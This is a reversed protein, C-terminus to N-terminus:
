KIQLIIFYTKISNGHMLNILSGEYGSTTSSIECARLLCVENLVKFSSYQQLITKMVKLGAVNLNCGFDTFVTCFTATIETLIIV